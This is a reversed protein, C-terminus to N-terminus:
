KPPGHKQMTSNKTDESKYTPGPLSARHETTLRRNYSLQQWQRQTVTAM